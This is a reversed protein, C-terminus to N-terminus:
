ASSGHLELPNHVTRFPSSRPRSRGDVWCAANTANFHAKTYDILPMSFDEYSLESLAAGQDGGPKHTSTACFSIDIRGTQEAVSKVFAAVADKDLVDVQATQIQAGALKQLASRTTTPSLSLPALKPM